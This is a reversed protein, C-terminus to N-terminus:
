KPRLKSKVTQRELGSGELQITYYLESPDDRHIKLVRAPRECGSEDYIVESGETPEFGFAMIASIRAWYVLQLCKFCAWTFWVLGTWLLGLYWRVFRFPALAIWCICCWMKWMFWRVASVLSLFIRKLLDFFKFVALSVALVLLISWVGRTSLVSPLATRARTRPPTFLRHGFTTRTRPTTIKQAAPRTATTAEKRGWGQRRQWASRVGRAEKPAMQVTEKAIADYDIAAAQGEVKCAQRRLCRGSELATLLHQLMEKREKRAEQLQLRTESLETKLFTLQRAAINDDQGVGGWVAVFLVVASM